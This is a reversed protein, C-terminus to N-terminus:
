FLANAEFYAFDTQNDKLRKFMEFKEKKTEWELKIAEFKKEIDANNEEFLHKNEKDNIINLM